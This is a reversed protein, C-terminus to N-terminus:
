YKGIATMFKFRDKGFVLIERLREMDVLWQHGHSIEGFAFKVINVISERRVEDIDKLQNKNISRITKSSLFKGVVSKTTAFNSKHKDMGPVAASTSIM